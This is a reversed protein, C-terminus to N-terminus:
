WTSSPPTATIVILRGSRLQIREAAPRDVLQDV